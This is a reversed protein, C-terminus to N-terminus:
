HTFLCVFYGIVIGDITSALILAWIWAKPLDSM